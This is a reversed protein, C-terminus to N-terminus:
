SLRAITYKCQYCIYCNEKFPVPLLDDEKGCICCRNNARTLEIKNENWQIKVM